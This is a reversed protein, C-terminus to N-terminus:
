NESPALLPIWPVYVEFKLRHCTMYVRTVLSEISVALYIRWTRVADNSWACFTRDAAKCAPKLSLPANFRTEVVESGAVGITPM